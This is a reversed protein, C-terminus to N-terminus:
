IGEFMAALPEMFAKGLPDLLNMPLVVGLSAHESCMTYLQQCSYGRPATVPRCLMKMGSVFVLRFPHHPRNPLM